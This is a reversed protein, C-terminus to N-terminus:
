TFNLFLIFNFVFFFLSSTPSYWLCAALGLRVFQPISFYDQVETNAGACVSPCIVGSRQTEYKKTQFHPTPRFISWSRKRQQNLVSCDIATEREIYVHKNETALTKIEFAIGM